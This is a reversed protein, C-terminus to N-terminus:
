DLQLSHFKVPTIKQIYMKEYLTSLIAESDQARMSPVDLLKMRYMEDEAIKFEEFFPANNSTRVYIGYALSM